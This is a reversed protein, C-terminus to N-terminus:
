LTWHSPVPCKQLPIFKGLQKHAASM